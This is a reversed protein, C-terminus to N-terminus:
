AEAQGLKPVYGLEAEVAVNRDHASQVVQRTLAVNTEFDQESADIMVSDYGAEICRRILKLDTAHDLHLWATVGNEKAAARAQASATWLASHPFPPSMGANGQGIRRRARRAGSSSWWRGARRFGRARKTWMRSKHSRRRRRSTPCLCM